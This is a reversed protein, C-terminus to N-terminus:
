VGVGEGLREALKTEGQQPAVFYVRSKSTKLSRVKGEAELRLLIARATSWSVDLKKAVDGVGLPLDSKLLVGLAKERLEEVLSARRVRSM